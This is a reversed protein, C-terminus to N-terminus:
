ILVASSWIFLNSFGVNFSYIYDSYFAPMRLAKDSVADKMSFKQQKM